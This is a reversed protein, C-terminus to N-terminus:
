GCVQVPRVRWGAKTHIRRQVVYCGGNNYYSDNYAYDPYGYGYGYQPVFQERAYRTDSSPRKRM